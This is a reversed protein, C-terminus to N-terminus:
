ANVINYNTNAEVTNNKGLVIDESGRGSSVNMNRVTINIKNGPGFNNNIGGFVSDSIGLVAGAYGNPAKITMSGSGNCIYISDTRGMANNNIGGWGGAGADTDTATVIYESGSEVTVTVTPGFKGNNIGILGGAANFGTVLFNSSGSVNSIIKAGSGITMDTMYGIHGGCSSSESRVTLVSNSAITVTSGSYGTGSQINGIIGGTYGQGKITVNCESLKIEPKNKINTNTTNNADALGICGGVNNNGKLECLTGPSFLMATTSEYNYGQSHGILGGVNDTGTISTNVGQYTLKTKESSGQMMSGILGGTNETGTIATKVGSFTLVPSAHCNALNMRGIIGGTNLTGTINSTYFTGSTELYSGNYIASATSKFSAEEMEGFIGGTNYSEGTISSAIGNFLVKSSADIAGKYMRGTIGGTNTVGTISSTEITGSNDLYTGNYTLSASNRLYSTTMYGIIGGTCDTGTVNSAEGNYTASSTNKFESGTVSGIIGGTNTIGHVSSSKASYTLSSTNIFTSGTITGIIGGTNESLGSITNRSGASLLSGKINNTSNINGICGGTNTTGKITSDDGTFSIAETENHTGGSLYGICGGINTVGTITSSNTEFKITGNITANVISGICGGVESTGSIFTGEGTASFNGKISPSNSMDGVCGGVNKQGTISIGSLNVSLNGGTGLDTLAYIAGKSGGIIGGVNNGGARIYIPESSTISTTRAVSISSTFYQNTAIESRGICGGANDNMATIHSLPHLTVNINSRISRGPALVGIVGGANDYCDVNVILINGNNQTPYSLTPNFESSDANRVVSEGIMGGANNNGEGPVDSEPTICRINISSGASSGQLAIESSEATKYLALKGIVGGAVSVANISCTGDIIARVRTNYHLGYADGICGGAHVNDATVSANNLLNSTITTYTTPTVQMGYLQAGICGGANSGYSRVTKGEDIVSFFASNAPMYDVFGVVGGVGHNDGTTATNGIIDENNIASVYFTRKATNSGTISGIAGGVGSKDNNSLTCDGYVKGNNVVTIVYDGTSDKLDAIKGIAGATTQSTGYIDTGNRTGIMGNNVVNVYVNSIESLQLIGIAGGVNKMIGPNGDSITITAGTSVRVSVEGTCNLIRGIAGGIGLQRNDNSSKKTGDVECIIHSGQDLKVDVAYTASSNETITLRGQADTSHALPATVSKIHCEKISGLAGGISDATAFLVSTANNPLKLIANETDQTNDVKIFADINNQSYGMAGGVNIWGAVAFNGTSEVTGFVSTEATNIGTRHNNDGIIAACSSVQQIVWTGNSWSGALIVCNSFKITNPTSYTDTEDGLTGKNNGILAGLPSTGKWGLTASITTGTMMQDIAAVLKDRDDLSGDPIDDLTATIGNGRINIVTGHNENFMGYGDLDYGGTNTSDTNKYFSPMRMQVNNISATKDEGDPLTSLNNDGAILTANKNISQVSPFSVVRLVDGYHEGTVPEVPSHGVLKNGEISYVIVDSSYSQENGLSDKKIEYWNLDRVITYTLDGTFDRLLRMNSLHRFSTIVASNRGYPGLSGTNLDGFHSNVVAHDKGQEQLVLPVDKPVVYDYLGETQVYVPDDMAREAPIIDSAVYNTTDNYTDHGEFEDPAIVMTAYFNKAYPTGNKPLTSSYSNRSKPLLRTISYNLTRLADNHTEAYISVNRAMMADLSLSYSIRDSVGDGVHVEYSIALPFTYYNRDYNSSSPNIISNWNSSSNYDFEETKRNVFVQATTKITRRYITIDIGRKDKIKEVTDVYTYQVGHIYVNNTEDKHFNSLEFHLQDYFTDTDGFGANWLSEAPKGDLISNENVILDCFKEDTDADYLSFQYHIHAPRGTIPQGDATASWTLDLTEGNRLTVFTNKIEMDAPIFVTDVAASSTKGNCYGVLSENRRYDRDRFPVVSNPNKKAILDWSTRTSDYFVSYISVNYHLEGSNNLVKEVDFEITILGNFIDTSKFDNFILDHIINDQDSSGNPTYTVAYRMHVSSGNAPAQPIINPFSDFYSQNAALYLNDNVNIDPNNNDYLSVTGYDMINLALQEITGSYEMHNVANQASQFVSVANEENNNFRTMDIYAIISYVAASALIGLIVIVVIMEVLTFGSNNKKKKFFLKKM